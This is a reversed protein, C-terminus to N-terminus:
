ADSRAVLEQLERLAPSAQEEALARLDHILARLEGHGHGAHAQLVNRVIGIRFAMWVLAAIPIGPVHSVVAMPRPQLKAGSERVLRFAELMVAAARRASTWSLAGEESVRLGSAMLPLMFAAHTKLWAPMDSCTATPFGADIFLSRISGLDSPAVDPLGGITTTQLFRFWSPVIEYCVTDGDFVGLAAPFGWLFRAQGVRESLPTLDSATNFMFMVRKASSAAVSELVADVQHRQVTVLLIDWPTETSLVDSARVAARDEKGTVLHRVSVSGSKQLAALRAGRAVVTVEHGARALRYAFISGIAGAGLIAIQM